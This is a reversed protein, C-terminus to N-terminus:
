KIQRLLLYVWLASSAVTVSKIFPDEWNVPINVVQLLDLVAVILFCIYVYADKKM